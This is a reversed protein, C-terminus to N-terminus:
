PSIKGYIGGIVGDGLLEKDTSSIDHIQKKGGCKYCRKLNEKVTSTQYLCTVMKNWTDESTINIIKCRFDHFKGGSLPKSFFDGVLKDTPCWVIVVEKDDIKQKM